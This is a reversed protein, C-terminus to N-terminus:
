IGACVAASNMCLPERLNLFFVRLIHRKVCLIYTEKLQRGGCTREEKGEPVDRNGYILVRKVRLLNREPTRGWAPARGRRRGEAASASPSTYINMDTHTHAYTHAHTCVSMTMYECVCVCVCVCVCACVCVCVCVCVCLLVHVCWCVPERACLLIVCM